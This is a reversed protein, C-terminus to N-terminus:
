NKKTTYSLQSVAHIEKAQVSFVFTFIHSVYTYSTYFQIFNSMTKLLIQSLGSLFHMAGPLTCFWIKLTHGYPVNHSEIKRKKQHHHHHMYSSINHNKNVPICIKHSDTHHMHETCSHLIDFCTGGWTHMATQHVTGCKEKSYYSWAYSYKMYLDHVCVHCPLYPEHWEPEHQTCTSLVSM